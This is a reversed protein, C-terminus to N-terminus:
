KLLADLTIEDINGDVFLNNKTEFDMIANATIAQYVGDVDITYGKSVLLKQIEFIFASKQGLTIIGQPFNDHLMNRFKEAKIRAKHDEESIGQEVVFQVEKNSYGKDKLQKSQELKMEYFKIKALKKNYENVAYQTQRNDDKPSRVDIENATWQMIMFGNLTEIAEQYNYVLSKDYYNMDAKKSIIYHSNNPHFRKYDKYQNYMFILVIVVLITILIKKM